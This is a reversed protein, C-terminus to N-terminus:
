PMAASKKPKPRQETWLRLLLEALNKMSTRRLGELRAAEKFPAAVASREEYYRWLEGDLRAAAAHDDPGQKAAGRVKEEWFQREERHSQLYDFVRQECRNLSM